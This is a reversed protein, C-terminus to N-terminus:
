SFFALADSLVAAFAADLDGAPYPVRDLHPSDGLLDSVAGDPIQSSDNADVGSGPYEADGQYFVTKFAKCRGAVITMKQRDAAADKTFVTFGEQDGLVFGFQEYGPFPGDTGDTIPSTYDQPSPSVDNSPIFATRFKTIAATFIKGGRFLSADVLSPVLLPNRFTGEQDVFDVHDFPCGYTFPFARASGIYAMAVNLPAFRSAFVSNIWAVGAVDDYCSVFIVKPVRALSGSSGWPNKGEWWEPGQSKPDPLAVIQGNVFASGRHWLWAADLAPAAMPRRAPNAVFKMLDYDLKGAPGFALSM